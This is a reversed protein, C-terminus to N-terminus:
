HAIGGPPDDIGIPISDYESEFEGSAVDKDHARVTVMFGNYGECIDYDGKGISTSHFWEERGYKDGIEDSVDKAHDYQEMVPQPAQINEGGDVEVTKNCDPHYSEPNEDDGQTRALIAVFLGSSALGGSVLFRRRNM